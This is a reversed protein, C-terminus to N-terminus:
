YGSGTIYRKMGDTGWYEPGYNFLIEEGHRIDKLAFMKMVGKVSRTSVNGRVDPYRRKFDAYSTSKGLLKAVDSPENAYSVASAAAIGDFVSGKNGSGASYTGTDKDEPDNYRRNWDDRSMKEGGYEGIIAGKKFVVTRSPDQAYLGLGPVGLEKLRKSMRVALHKHIVLHQNCYRYDICTRRRCRQGTSKSKAVCQMGCIRPATLDPQKSGRRPSIRWKRRDYGKNVYLEGGEPYYVSSVDPEIVEM